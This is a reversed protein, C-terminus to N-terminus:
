PKQPNYSQKQLRIFYQEAKSKYYPNFQLPVSQLQQIEKAKLLEYAEIQLPKKRMLRKASKSKRKESMEREQEANQARLLRTKIEAQRRITETNLMKNVLEHETQQMAKIAEEIGEPKAGSEQMMQEKYAELMRRIQAQKAALRAFSESSPKQANGQQKGKNKGQAKQMAQMQQNLQQQLRQAEGLQPKGGPKGPKGNPCSSMSSSMNNMEDEINELSEQLMLALNNYAQMVFQQERLSKYTDHAELYEMLTKTRADISNLNNIIYQKVHKQRKSLAILSDKVSAFHRRAFFQQQVLPNYAPDADDLWKLTDLLGEQHFSLRLLQELIFRLVRADEAAQQMASSAFQLQMANALSQMQQAAKQQYPVAQQPQSQMQEFSQQMLNQIADQLATQTNMQMPQELSKNLSDLRQMDNQLSEFDANLQAQQQSLNDDAKRQQAVQEALDEQEKAMSELHAIHAQLKEEIEMRKFLEMQRDLAQEYANFSQEIDRLMDMSEDKTWEDMKISFAELKEKLEPSLLENMMAQLKAEKKELNFALSDLLDSREKGSVPQLREEIARHAEILDQLKQRDSWSMLEKDLLSKRLQEIDKKLTFLQERDALMASSLSDAAINEQAILQKMSAKQYYFTPTQSIKYGQLVDNDQVSFYYSCEEGARLPLQSFDYHYFFSQLRVASNLAIPLQWSSDRYSLHMQLHNIGYDDELKGAFFLVAATTSDQISQVEISPYQDPIISLRFHASDTIGAQSNSAWCHYYTNGLLTDKASFHSAEEQEVLIPLSDKRLILQECDSTKIHIQIRSGFPIALDQLDSNQYSSLKTYVPPQISLQINALMAKPVVLLRNVKSLFRGKDSIRFEIDNQLYNFTYVFFGKDNEQMLYDQGGYHVYLYKPKLKGKTSLILQFSGKSYAKLDKNHILISFAQPPEYHRNFHWLRETPKAIWYPFFFLGLLMILLPVLLYRGLRLNASLKITQLIPFPKIQSCKQAIGANILAEQSPTVGQMSHLQLINYIKDNIAPFHEGIREAAQLYSMRPLIRWRRMLPLFVLIVLAVLAVLCFSYFLITRTAVSFYFWSELSNFLIYLGLLLLLTFISGRIVLNAYYKNIFGDLRSLLQKYTSSSM